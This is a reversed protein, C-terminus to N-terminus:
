VWLTFQTVGVTHIIEVEILRNQSSKVQTYVMIQVILRSGM